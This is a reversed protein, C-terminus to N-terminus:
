GPTSPTRWVKLRKCLAQSVSPVASQNQGAAAFAPSASAKAGGKWSARARTQEESRAQEFGTLDFNIGQDRAADVMFDLPLGYTEYLHFATAGPLTGDKRVQEIAADLQKSGLALTRGFREEEARVVRAVRDASEALEPYADRMEDRVAEVMRYMFPDEQGLMRGHRVPVLEPVRSEAQGLLLAVPDRSGEPRFEAHAELPAVARAHKGRAVRDERSLHEAVAARAPGRGSARAGSRGAAARDTTVTM